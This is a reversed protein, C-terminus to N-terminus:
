VIAHKRHTPRAINNIRNNETCYLSSPFVSQGFNKNLVNSNTKTNVRARRPSYGTPYSRRILTGILRAFLANESQTVITNFWCRQVSYAIIQIPKTEHVMRKSWNFDARQWIEVTNLPSEMVNRTSMVVDEIELRRFKTQSEDPHM